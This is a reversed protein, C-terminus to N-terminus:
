PSSDASGLLTWQTLASSNWTRTQLSFAQLNQIGETPNAFIMPLQSRVRELEAASMHTQKLAPRSPLQAPHGATEWPSNWINHLASPVGPLGGQLHQPYGLLGNPRNAFGGGEGKGLPSIGLSARGTHAADSPGHSTANDPVETATLSALSEMSSYTQRESAAEIASPHGQLMKEGQAFAPQGQM